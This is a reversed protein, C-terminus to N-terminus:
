PRGERTVLKHLRQVARLLRMKVAAESISLVAAVEATSLQELYRLALIERDREPLRDLASRIHIRQEERRLRASPGLSSILLRGALEYASADPLGAPEERRVTRRAARVHRRHTMGIQDVAIQRLWPYFPLPRTRVYSDLRRNAEILVEQVVDSPDVRPAVRSDLRVAIMRLLRDRHRRLLQERASSDGDAVSALLEDTDPQAVKVPSYGELGTGAM